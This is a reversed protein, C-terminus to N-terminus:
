LLISVIPMDYRQSPKIVQLKDCLYNSHGGTVLLVNHQVYHSAAVCYVAKSGGVSSRQHRGTRISRRLGDGACIQCLEANATFRGSRESLGGITDRPLWLSAGSCQSGQFLTTYPFLTSRPPRRIM